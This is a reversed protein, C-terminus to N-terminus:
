DRLARYHELHASILAKLAPSTAPANLTDTFAQAYSQM